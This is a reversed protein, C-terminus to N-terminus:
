RWGRIAVLLMIAYDTHSRVFDSKAMALVTLNWRVIHIGPLNRAGAGCM